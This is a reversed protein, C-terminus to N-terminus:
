EAPALKVTKGLGRIMNLTVEALMPCATLTDTTCRGDEGNVGDLRKECNSRPGQVIVELGDPSNRNDDQLMRSAPKPPEPRKVANKM